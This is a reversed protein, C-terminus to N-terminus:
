EAPKNEAAKKAAPGSTRPKKAAAPKKAAPKKAATTKKAATKKAAVPKKAEAEITTDVIAAVPANKQISAIGKQVSKKDPYSEGVAITEGNGAKLRFRFQNGKDKYIEFKPAPM